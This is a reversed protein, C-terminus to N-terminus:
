KLATTLNLVLAKKLSKSPRAGVQYIIQAATKAGLKGSDELNYDHTYGYLFGAIFGDGAGNLDIIRSTEGATPIHFKAEKTAIIAGKKGQTIVVIQAYNLYKTIAEDTTKVKFLNRAEAESGVIIDIKPLLSIIEDRYTEVYHNNNLNFATIIGNNKAVDVAKFTVKSQNGGHSLNSADTYFVKSNKIADYDIFNDNIEKAIDAYVAFTRDKDPTIFTFCLSTHQSLDKSFPSTYSVGEKILSEKFLKGFKDNASIANFATKGGLSAIDVMVNATSGGPITIIDHMNSHIQDATKNDIKNTDAKHFGLPMIKYLEDESTYEILDVMVNGIAVVDYKKDVSLSLSPLLIGIFLISLKRVLNM